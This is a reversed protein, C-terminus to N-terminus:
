GETVEGFVCDEDGYEIHIAKNNKVFNSYLVGQSYWNEWGTVEDKVHKWGLKELALKLELYDDKWQSM